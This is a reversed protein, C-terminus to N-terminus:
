YLALQGLHYAQHDGSKGAVELILHGSKALDSNNKNVYM